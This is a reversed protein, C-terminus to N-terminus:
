GRDKQEDDRKENWVLARLSPVLTVLVNHPAVEGPLTQAAAVDAVGVVVDGGDVDGEVGGAGVVDETLWPCLCRLMLDKHADFRINIAVWMDRSM